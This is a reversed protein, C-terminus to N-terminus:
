LKVRFSFAGSWLGDDWINRLDASISLTTQLVLFNLGVGAYIQPQIAGFDFSDTKYNGSGNTAVTTGLQKAADAATLFQTNKVKWDYSNDCKSVLGRLGVFPTFILFSKSVQAQAYMTHIKYDVNLEADSNGAGFSGQNYFYGVGVSLKPLVLGGELLAYRFDFGVTLFDVDLDCGMASTSLTGTKMVAIDCDFPFLIGGIRLDATFVPYYYSDKIGDIELASAAKAIGSTDIHTLAVNFGGGLHFPVSPFLKGIYADAWVNQQTAAQPIANALQTTFDDLGDNITDAFYNPNSTLSSFDSGDLAYISSSFTLAAFALIIKKSLKM